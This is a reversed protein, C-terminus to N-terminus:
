QIINYITPEYHRTSLFKANDVYLVVYLYAPVYTTLDLLFNDIYDNFPGQILFVFRFHYNVIKLTGIFGFKVM